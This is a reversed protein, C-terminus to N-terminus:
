FAVSVYELLQETSRCGGFMEKLRAIVQTVTARTTGTELAIAKQNMGCMLCYLVHIQLVTLPVCSGDAMTLAKDQGSAITRYTCNKDFQIRAHELEYEEPCVIMSCRDYYMLRKKIVPNMHRDTYIIVPIGKQELEFFAESASFRDAEFNLLVADCEGGDFQPFRLAGTLRSFVNQRTMLEFRSYHSSMVKKM